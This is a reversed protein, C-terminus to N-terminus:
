DNKKFYEQVKLNFNTRLPLTQRNLIEISKLYEQLAPPLPPTSNKFQQKAGDAQRKEEEGQQQFAKDLKLLEYKLNMMRQLVENNFGKNLLQKEIQKMQDLASQGSGGLGQKNLENQLSERLQQQQKFIEMISEADGEGDIGDKSGDNNGSNSNGKGDKGKGDKGKGDRGKDPNNGPSQGPKLGEKLKDSLGQQKKIIDPLQSGSGSGKGPSPQGKGKGKGSMSMSMQMNTLIDALFDALKNSSSVSYQQHYVGRSINADALNELAKDVNYQVNGVEKTINEAIKPNRLSMAFLSDDVHKFQQKLDQQEKLFKNFTPSGRKLNKFQKMVEEQSFSYSVLNDLIQRLMVFDEELQEQESEDMSEQMDSSMQKMQKAASKQKPKATSKSEKKLEDTAKKLDDDINEEKDKTNPLDLPSKLEDNEKQLENLQKKIDDFDKNVEEQKQSNNEKESDALKNQKESLSTLKDAIQEAKKEVYYKKTLEVLQELSKTQNLTQQKLQDMKDFLEEKDIKDNLKKLEDLLKNNKDFEKDINELRKQLQEKNIDTKNPQFKELNDKMKEAFEQMIKEQKMQRDLFDNVKQQEKYELTEKEKGMKQLKDIESLQKEQTKLSKELTSITSNQQQLLIDQKETETNVRFSFISTRSSKFNHLVDNDFVEFYYDYTVGQTVPLNSPFTFIFQDFVDKKFPIMGRMVKSPDKSPFYVVQLKSLGYDDAIQGLLFNSDVNLTDPASGVTITPFADKTVSLQYTLIDHNKVKNNSTIIQYETNQYVKRSLDFRNKDTLLFQSITVGKFVVKNSALTAIKWSVTTGEPIIANGTGSVTESKKNLYSPYNLIMEFNTITPVSVVDLLYDKSSINNAELHFTVDSTPKPIIFKFEGLQSSEMFYSENNIIIIAKEPVVKGKTKVILEFDQNQETALSPNVIQFEFPAPPLFQQKFHVIRNFGDNIVFSNGTAFILIFILFPLITLPLYKKNSNFNIANSFPIPQLSLAKQDISAVLLESQNKDASLQLFNLLKDSVEPFHKGIISSATEHNIGNQFKFLKFIPFIIFRFLLFLEGIIFTSFLLTRFTPQLWLFYEVFITILFYLLGLGIFFLTGRLLENTYYKKIFGELKLYILSSNNL